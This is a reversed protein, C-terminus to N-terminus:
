GEPVAVKLTEYNRSVHPIPDEKTVSALTVSKHSVKIIMRLKTMTEVVPTTESQPQKRNTKQFARFLTQEKWTLALSPECLM